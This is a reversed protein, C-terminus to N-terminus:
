ARFIERSAAAHLYSIARGSALRRGIRVMTMVDKIFGALASSRSPGAECLTDSGVPLSGGIVM